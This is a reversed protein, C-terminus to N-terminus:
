SSKKHKINVQTKKALVYIKHEIKEPQSLYKLVLDPDKDEATHLVIDGARTLRDWISVDVTLNLIHSFLVSKKKIIIFKFERVVRDEYFYYKTVSLLFIAISMPIITLVLLPFFIAIFNLNPSINSGLLNLISIIGLIFGIVIVAALLSKFFTPLLANIMSPKRIFLPKEM